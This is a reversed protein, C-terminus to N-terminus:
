QYLADGGSVGVRSQPMDIVDNRVVNTLGGLDHPSTSPSFSPNAAVINKVACPVQRGDIADRYLM